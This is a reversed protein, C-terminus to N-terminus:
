SDHRAPRLTPRLRRRRQARDRVAVARHDRRNTPTDRVTSRSFTDQYADALDQHDRVRRRLFRVLVPRPRRAPRAYALADGHQALAMWGARRRSRDASTDPAARQAAATATHREIPLGTTVSM